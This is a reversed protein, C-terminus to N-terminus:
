NGRGEEKKRIIKLKRELQKLGEDDAILTGVCVPTKDEDNGGNLASLFPLLYEALAKANAQAQAVVVPDDEAAGRGGSSLSPVSNTNIGAYAFRGFQGKNSGPANFNDLIGSINERIGTSVDALRTTLSGKLSDVSNRLYKKASSSVMGVGVGETIYEGYPEMNGAPSNIDFVSKIKDVITDYIKQAIDGLANLGGLIGNKIGELVNRGLSTFNELSFIRGLSARWNNFDSLRNSCWTSFDSRTTSIWSSVIQHTNTKWNTFSAGVNSVWNGFAGKTNTIWGSVTSGASSAWGSITSGVSNKWNTFDTKVGSCWNSFRTKKDTVWSDIKGGTSTAWSNVSTGVNNKWNTFDTNVDSCWNKFDSLRDNCWTSITHGTSSCWSMVSEGIANWDADAFMGIIWGVLGGIAGGILTGVPGAVFTGIAAGIGVGMPTTASVWDADGEICEKVKNIIWGVLGGIGAGILAGVPGGAIAGIAAGIGIGIPMSLETWEANGDLMDKITGIIHGVLGGIATGIAAGGPGGIAMGIAGGIPACITTGLAQMDSQGLKDSLKEFIWGALAGIATGIAAGAPGGFILGIAAGIAGGFGAAIGPTYAESGENLRNSFEDFLWTALTGVAVGILAGAPGGIILGIAAAVITGLESAMSAIDWKGTKFGEIILGSLDGVMAGIAGGILAGPPGGIVLGIAAGIATGIGTAIASYDWEGTNFGEIIAGTVWGVLAGIVGGLAAGAPGGIVAGIAAGLGAGILSTVETVDSMNLANAVEDWLFGVIAGALTGLIAGVPGGLITGVIGGLGAGLVTNLLDSFWDGGLLEKMYDVFKDKFESIFGTPDVDLFDGLDIPDMGGIADMLDGTDIGGAGAGGDAGTTEDPTKLKFVEDFSLLGAVKKSAKDASDAADKAANDVSEISDKTGDLAESFKDADASTKKMTKQLTGSTDTNFMGKLKDGVGKVKDGLGSFKIALGGVAVGALALFLMLPSAAILRSIASIWSAITSLGAIVAKAGAAALMAARYMVWAKMGVTLFATLTSVGKATGATGDIIGSFANMVAYLPPIMWNLTNVLAQLFAHLIPLASQGLNKAAAAFEQLNVVLQRISERAEPPVLSEFLGGIGSTAVINNMEMLGNNIDGLLGKCMLWFPKIAEAGVMTFNDKINSMIGKMTMSSYDLVKGYRETMGEILANIAKSAPIAQKGIEGLQEKTLGLKQQLIEFAPIGAETLQLLEQQQLRGKTYMQGLAKTISKMAQDNGQITAAAMIGKMMFMLNKYEIGYALLQQASKASDEFSFPTVAAYDKLVQTFEQALGFDKMMLSMSMQTSELETNFDYLAGTTSKIADLGQYFVQSIVIGQVIRGVDKFSFGVRDTSTSLDGVTRQLGSTFQTAQRSATRLGQSFNSINLQLNAILTAFSAM